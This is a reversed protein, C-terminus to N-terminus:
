SLIVKEEEELFDNVARRVLSPRDDFKGKKILEDMKMLAKDDFRCTIQTKRVRMM